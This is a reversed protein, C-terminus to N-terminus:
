CGSLVEEVRRSDAPDLVLAYASAVERWATAYDCHAGPNPPLWRSPGRDGKSNNTPGDVARLNAWDNSFAERESDTWQWAGAQWAYSLPIM